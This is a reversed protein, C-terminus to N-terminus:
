AAITRDLWAWPTSLPDVGGGRLCHGAHERDIGAGVQLRGAVAAEFAHRRELVAVASRHLLRRPRRERDVLDTEDAVGDGAHDRLGRDLGLLRGFRDHEVDLRQGGDRPRALRDLGARRLQEVVDGVVDREVIMIPSASFTFAAKAVAAWTVRSSSRLLRRTTLAMSGRAAM